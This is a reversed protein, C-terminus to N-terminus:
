LPFMFDLAPYYIKLGTKRCLFFFCLNYGHSRDFKKRNGSFKTAFEVPRSPVHNLGQINSRQAQIQNAECFM